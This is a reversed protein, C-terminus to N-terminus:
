ADTLDLACVEEVSEQVWGVTRGWRLLPLCEVPSSKPSSPPSLHGVTEQGM